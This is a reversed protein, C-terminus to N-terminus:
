VTGLIREVLDLLAQFMPLSLYVIVVSALMQLSKGLSANGSDACVGAAIEGTFAVATVKLLGGLMEENVAGLQQLRRLFGIIPSLFGMAIWAVLCCGCLVLLSAIEANYKHITISLICTVLIGAVAVYFRDM